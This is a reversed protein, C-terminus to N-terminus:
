RGPVASRGYSAGAYGGLYFLRQADEEYIPRRVVNTGDPGSRGMRDSACGSLAMPIMGVVLLCARGALSRSRVM